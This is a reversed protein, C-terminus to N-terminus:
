VIKSFSNLNSIPRYNHVDNLKVSKHIPIITAEKWPSPFIGNRLSLNFLHTLLPSLINSCGKAIFIPIGDLGVSKTPKLAKIANLVDTETVTPIDLSDYCRITSHLSPKNNNVINISEFHNSFINVIADVDTVHSGKILIEKPFDNNSKNTKVYLLTCILGFM